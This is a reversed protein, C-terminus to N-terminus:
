ASLGRNPLAAPHALWGRQRRFAGATVGSRAKFFRAFYASDAFGLDGAIQSVSAASYTLSRMAELLVRDLVVEGPARGLAARCARTLTPPTTGLARAYNQVRWGDRFHLEVLERFRGIVQQRQGIVGPTATSEEALAFLDEVSTLILAILAAVVDPLLGARDHALTEALDALLLGLRHPAPAPEAPQHWRPRGHQRRVASPFAAIRRDNLLDAALSLVWGEAESEFRFAHVCGNPLAIVAGRDWGWRLGTLLWSAAGQKM